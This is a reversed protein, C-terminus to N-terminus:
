FCEVCSLNYSLVLPSHGPECEGCLLGTRHFYKCASDNLLALPEGPLEKFIVNRHIKISNHKFYCNYFCAGAFTSNTFTDYTVCYCIRIASIYNNNDCVIMGEATDRCECRNESNCTFWTPCSQTDCDKTDIALHDTTNGCSTKVESLILTFSLLLKFQSTKM